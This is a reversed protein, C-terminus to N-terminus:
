RGLPLLFPSLLNNSSLQGGYASSGPSMLGLFSRRKANEDQKKKPAPASAKGPTSQKPAGVGYGHRAVGQIMSLLPNAGGQIASGVDGLFGRGANAVAGAAGM